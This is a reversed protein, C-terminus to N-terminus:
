HMHMLLLRSSFSSLGCIFWCFLFVKMFVGLMLIARCPVLKREVLKVTFCGLECQDVPLGICM